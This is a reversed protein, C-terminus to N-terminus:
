GHVSRSGHATWLPRLDAVLYGRVPENRKSTQSWVDLRTPQVQFSKMVRAIAHPTPGSVVHGQGDRRIGEAWPSAYGPTNALWEIFGSTSLLGRPASEGPAGTVSWQQVATGTAARRSRRTNWRSLVVARRYGYFDVLLHEPKSLSRSKKPDVGLALCAALGRVLWDRSALKAVLLLPEWNDAARSSLAPPLMKKRDVRKTMAKAMADGHAALLPAIRDRFAVLDADSVHAGAFGTQKSMVIKISRDEITAALSGLGAIAVPSFTRYTKPEWDSDEDSKDKASIIIMGARRHGSNIVMRINENGNVWADAEDLILTPQYAEVLRFFSSASVSDASLARAAIYSLTELLTTKGSGPGGSIVRLRPYRSPGPAANAEQGPLVGERVGWTAVSWLAAVNVENESCSVRSRIFDAVEDLVEDLPRVASAPQYVAFPLARDPTGVGMQAGAMKDFQKRIDGIPIGTSTKITSCLVGIALHDMETLIANMMVARAGAHDGNTLSKAAALIEDGASQPQEAAEDPIGDLDDEAGGFLACAIDPDLGTVYPDDHIQPEDTRSDPPVYFNNDATDMATLEKNPQNAFPKQLSATQPVPL